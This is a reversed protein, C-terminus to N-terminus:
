TLSGSPPLDAKNRLNKSSILGYLSMGILLLAGAAMGLPVSVHAFLPVALLLGLSYMVYEATNFAGFVKGMQHSPLEQIMMKKMLDGMPGGFSALDSNHMGQFFLYM